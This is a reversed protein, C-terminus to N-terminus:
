AVNEFYKLGKNVFYKLFIKIVKAYNIQVINKNIIIRFRFINFM